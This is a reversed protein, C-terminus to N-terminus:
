PVTSRVYRCEVFYETHRVRVFCALFSFRSIRRFHGLKKQEAEHRGSVLVEGLKVCNLEM